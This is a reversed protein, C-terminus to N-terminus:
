KKLRREHRLAAYRAGCSDSASGHRQIDHHIPAAEFIDKPHHDLGALRRHSPRQLDSRREHQWRAIAIYSLLKLKRARKCDRARAERTGVQLGLDIFQTM